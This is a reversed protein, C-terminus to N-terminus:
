SLEAVPQVGTELVATARGGAGSITTHPDIGLAHYLTATVEPPEVPRVEPAAGLADSAGIVQGGRLGGGGLVISWCGPHHDRGGQPNIRPTRGFEGLAAVVTREYLGRDTLDELLAAHARDFVPAVHERLDTVKTPLGYAGHCDWSMEGFVTQYMNVTVVRVGAEVLRRARLCSEGFESRGYRDRTSASERELNLTAATEPSYREASGSEPCFPAHARGLFAAGQGHAVPVGTNEIPRPLLVSAPLGNRGGLLYSAVAGLHPREPEDPTWRHGTQLLQLGAEHIPPGSHYMSRIIAYKDAHRATLPLIESMEIGPVNTPIPRYRGRVESPAEPKPDWTDHQSPGGVLMLLIVSKDSASAAGVAAPLALGWAAASGAALVERRSWTREDRM